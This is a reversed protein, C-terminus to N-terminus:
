VTIRRALIRALRIDTATSSERRSFPAAMVVEVETRGQRIVIMDLVTHTSGVATPGRLEFRFGFSADGVKPLHLARADVVRDYGGATIAGRLCSELGGGQVVHWDHLVMSPTRLVEAESSATADDSTFLTMAIGTEVIGAEKSALSPCMAAGASSAGVVDSLRLAGGNWLVGIPGSGGRPLDERHLVVARAAAEDTTGHSVGAAAASAGVAAVSVVALLTLTFARTRM